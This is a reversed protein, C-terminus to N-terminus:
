ASARRKTVADEMWATVRAAISAYSYHERAARESQAGMRRRLDTSSALTRVHRELAVADAYPMTFGNEHRALHALQMDAIVVPLRCSMAEIIALTNNGPWVGIDAAAYLAAMRKRGVFGFFQARDAVQHGHALARLKALYEAPGEGVLLVRLSLDQTRAALTILSEIAKRRFMYGSFILVVDESRYGLEARVAERDAARFTFVDTEVGLPLDAIRTLPIGHREHLFRKCDDAVAIIRDARRLAYQVFFRRWWFYEAYRVVRQWWRHNQVRHFLDHVDLFYAFGLRRKHRAAAIPVMTRPEHGFVVDPRLEELVKRVGRVIIFDQYHFVVPLRIITLGDFVYQGPTHPDIHLSISELAYRERINSLPYFLAAAVVFVEHGQRAQQRALALEQGGVLEFYSVLYVIRM